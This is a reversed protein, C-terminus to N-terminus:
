IGSYCNDHMVQLRNIHRRAIELAPSLHACIVKEFYKCTFLTAAGVKLHRLVRYIVSKKKFNVNDRIVTQVCKFKFIVWFSNKELSKKKNQSYFRKLLSVFSIIDNYYEYWTMAEVSILESIRLCELPHSVRERAYYWKFVRGIRLAQIIIM